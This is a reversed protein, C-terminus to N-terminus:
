IRRLGVIEVALTVASAQSVCSMDLTDFTYKDRVRLRDVEIFGGEVIVTAPDVEPITQPTVYLRSAAIPYVSIPPSLGADPPQTPRRSNARRVEGAEVNSAYAERSMPSM